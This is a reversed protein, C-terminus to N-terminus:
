ASVSPDEEGALDQALVPSAISLTSADRGVPPSLKNDRGIM